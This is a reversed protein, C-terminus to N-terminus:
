KNELGLMALFLKDRKVSETRWRQIGAKSVVTTEEVCDFWDLILFLSRNELWTLLKKRENKQQQTLDGASKQKLKEKIDKLKGILWCRYSLAIFQVFQRGRLRDGSWVRPKKGDCYDKYMGFAEETKERLRYDQLAEFCSQAKNSVLVFLGFFKATEDFAEQNFKVSLKGGRGAHSLILYKDAKKQASESLEEGNIVSNRLGMLEDELAQTKVTEIETNRLIHVYVRRNFKQQEGAKVEGRSRLRVRSFEQMKSVTLGKVQSDFPCINELNNLGSLAEDVIPALWAATRDALTLFKTNSDLFEVVNAMSYYGNDTVVMPKNVGLTSLQKLATQISIVDPINGPQKCYAIPMRDKVSYLTVLKITPLGDADKNFGYRAEKQNVSYTSVTTSDLALAPEKDLTAAINRFYNQIWSEETGIREFLEGYVRETIPEPYPIEHRLQWSEIGPLTHGDSAVLYRALSIVKLAEPEPLSRLVAEDIGSEKGAFDLIESAGVRIRKAEATPIEGKPAAPKKPRTKVIETQGPPIKGILKCGLVKIKKTNPDYVTTREYIYKTGDKRTETRRGVHPVGSLPRGM